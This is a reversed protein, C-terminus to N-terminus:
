AAETEIHWHATVMHVEASTVVYKKKGEPPITLINGVDDVPLGDTNVLCMAAFFHMGWKPEHSAPLFPRGNVDERYILWVDTGAQRDVYGRSNKAWQKLPGQVAAAIVNYASPKETPTQNWWTFLRRSEVDTGFAADAFGLLIRSAAAFM